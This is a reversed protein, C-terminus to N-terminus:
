LPWPRQRLELCYFGQPVPSRRPWPPLLPWESTRSVLGTRVGVLRKRRGGNVGQQAAHDGAVGVQTPVKGPCVGGSITKQSQFFVREVSLAM